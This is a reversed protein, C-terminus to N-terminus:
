DPPFRELNRKVAQLLSRTEVGYLAALDEDILVRQGVTARPNSKRLLSELGPKKRLQASKSRVPRARINNSCSGCKGAFKGLALCCTSYPYGGAGVVAPMGRRFWLPDEFLTGSVTHSGSPVRATGGVGGEGGGTVGRSQLAGWVRWDRLVRRSEERSIAP